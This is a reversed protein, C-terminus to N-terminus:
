NLLLLQIYLNKWLAGLANLAVMVFMHLIYFLHAISKLTTPVIFTANTAVAADKKLAILLNVYTQTLVLVDTQTTILPNAM